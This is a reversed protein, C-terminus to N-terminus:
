AAVEDRVTIQDGYFVGVLGGTLTVRWLGGRRAREREVLCRVLLAAPTSPMPFAGLRSLAIVERPVSFQVPVTMM